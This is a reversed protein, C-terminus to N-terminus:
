LHDIFTFIALIYVKADLHALKWSGQDEVIMISPVSDIPGSHM